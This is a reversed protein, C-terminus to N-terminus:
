KKFITIIDQAVAQMVKIPFMMLSIGRKIVHENIGDSSKKIIKDIDSSEKTM